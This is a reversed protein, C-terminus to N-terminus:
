VRAVPLGNYIELDDVWIQYPSFKDTAEYYIKALPIGSQL